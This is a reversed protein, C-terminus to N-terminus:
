KLFPSSTMLRAYILFDFVDHIKQSIEKSSIGPKVFEADFLTIVSADEDPGKKYSYPALMAFVAHRMSYYACNVISANHRTIRRLAYADALRGHARKLWNQAFQRQADTRRDAM